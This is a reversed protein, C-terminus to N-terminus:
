GQISGITLGHECGRSENNSLGLSDIDCDVLGIDGLVVSINGVNSSCCDARHGDGLGNSSLDNGIDVGGGTNDVVNDLGSVVLVDLLRINGLMSGVYLIDSSGSDARHSDGVSNGALNDSLCVGGGANDIINDLRGVILMDLLGIDGLMLGVDLIDGSSSDAGDSDGLGDSAFDNGLGVGGGTDNLLLNGCGRVLMDLLGVHGLVLGINDVNSLGVDVRDSDGLGNGALDDGADVSRGVVDDVLDMSSDVVLHLLGIHGLMLCVNDVLGLVLNVRHSNSLSDLALNDGVDVGGGGDNNLLDNSGNGGILGDDLGNALALNDSLVGLDDLSNTTASDVLGNGRLGSGDLSRLGLDDGLRHDSNRDWGRRSGGSGCRDGSASSGGVSGRDEGEHGTDESSDNEDLCVSNAQLEL